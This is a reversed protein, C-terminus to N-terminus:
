VSKTINRSRGLHWSLFIQRYTEILMFYKAFGVKVAVPKDFKIQAIDNVSDEPGFSGRVTELLNWRDSGGMVGAPPIPDQVGAGTEDLIDLEYEYTGAGAYVCVGAIM